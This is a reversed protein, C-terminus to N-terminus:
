WVKALFGLETILHYSTGEFPNIPDSFIFISFYGFWSGVTQKLEKIEDDKNKELQALKEHKQKIQEELELPLDKGEKLLNVKLSIM